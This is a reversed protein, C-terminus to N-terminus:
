SQSACISSSNANATQRHNSHTISIHVDHRFKEHHRYNLPLCSCGDWINASKHLHKVSVLIATLSFNCHFQLLRSDGANENTLVAKQTIATFSGLGPILLTRM